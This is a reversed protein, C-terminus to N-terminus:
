APKRFHRLLIAVWVLTAGLFPGVIAYLFSPPLSVPTRANASLITHHIGAFFAIFLVTFWFGHRVVYDLTEERREPALWYEKNRINLGWGNFERIILFTGTIFAPVVAGFILTFRLYVSQTEWGNPEGDEGFHTAVREPLRGSTRWVYAAFALWALVLLFYPPSSRHTDM